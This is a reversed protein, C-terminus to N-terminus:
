VLHRYVIVMKLLMEMLILKEKIVNHLIARTFGGVSLEQELQHAYVLVFVRGTLQTAM